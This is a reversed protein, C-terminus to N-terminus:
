AESRQTIHVDIVAGSFEMHILNVANPDTDIQGNNIRFEPGWAIGHNGVADMTLELRASGGAPMPDPSTITLAETATLTFRNGLAPNFSVNGAAVTAAVPTTWFGAGLTASVTSRLADSTGDIVAQQIAKRLQQLDAASAPLPNEVTGLFYTIVEVIERMPHEIAEAPPSSGQVANQPDANVYPRDPDSSGEGFYVPPQYQM